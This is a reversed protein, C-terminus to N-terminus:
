RDAFLKQCWLDHFKVSFFYKSKSKGVMCYISKFRLNLNQQSYKELSILYVHELLSFYHKLCIMCWIYSLLKCFHDYFNMNLFAISRSLFDVGSDIFFYWFCVFLCFCQLLNLLFTFAKQVDQYM